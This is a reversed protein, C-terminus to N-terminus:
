EAKAQRRKRLKMGIGALGTGLLLMTAPEPVPEVSIMVDDVFTRNTLGFRGASIFGFISFGTLQKGPTLRDTVDFLEWNTTMTLVVSQVQTGDSYFFDVAAPLGQPFPSTDPHKLWFSVETIRGTRTASFNQRLEKDGVDTASFSGTHADAATVNWNETGVSFDNGQFWPSLAGSEFGGNIILQDAQAQSSLGFCLALLAVSVLVRIRQMM